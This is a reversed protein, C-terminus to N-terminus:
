HFHFLNEPRETLQKYVSIARQYLLPDLADIDSQPIRSSRITERIKDGDDSQHIHRLLDALCVQPDACLWEYNLLSVCNLCASELLYEHVIAWSELWYNINEPKFRGSQQKLVFEFPVHNLGFEYHVLWHMYRRGFNDQAQVASFRQHQTWLSRSVSAPHRYVILVVGQGHEVIMNLRMIHNNNKSLYRLPETQRRENALVVLRRYQAFSPIAEPTPHFALGEPRVEYDDVSHTRWFVEEFAEPSDLDVMIGDGHAREVEDMKYWSSHNFRDWLNPALVFPMNRYNLSAFRGTQELVRLVLTTGSRALGCVYVAELIKNNDRSESRKLFLVREIDFLLVRVWRSDLVLWHLWKQPLSYPSLSAEHKYAGKLLAFADRRLWWWALAFLTHGVWFATQQASSPKWLMLPAFVWAAAVALVAMFLLSGALVALGTQLVASQRQDDGEAAIFAELSHRVRGLIFPLWKQALLWRFGEVLLAASPLGLAFWIM